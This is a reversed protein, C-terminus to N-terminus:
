SNTALNEEQAWLDEVHNALRIVDVNIAKIPPDLAAQIERRSKSVGNFVIRDAAFGAHEVKALEGGSNVEVAVGEDQMLRLISLNACAKSAFCVTSGPGFAAILERANQRLRTESYVFLPTGHQEAVEVLDIGDVHLHGNRDELMRGDQWPSLHFAKTM